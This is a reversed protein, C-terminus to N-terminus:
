RMQQEILSPCHSLKANPQQQLRLLLRVGSRDAFSVHQLDVTLNLRARLINECIDRLYDVWPGVLRGELHLVAMRDELQERTIKLM